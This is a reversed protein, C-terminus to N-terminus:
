KFLQALNAIHDKLAMEDNNGSGNILIDDAMVEMGKLDHVIYHLRQQFLAPAPSIGFSVRLWRYKESPFWSTTLNKSSKDLELQWFGKKKLL